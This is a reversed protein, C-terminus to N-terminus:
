FWPQVYLEYNETSLEGLVSMEFPTNKEAKVNDVFTTDGGLLKGDADRWVVTLAVTTAGYTNPNYIEGIISSNWEGKKLRSNAIQFPVYEPHELTDPKVYHWDDEPEVFEVEVVAPVKEVAGASGAFVAEQGPYMLMLGQNEVSLLAGDEDRATITFQPLNVAYESSNNVAAFSYYLYGDKVEFGSEKVTVISGSVPQQTEDTGEPIVEAPAEVTAAPTEVASLKEQLQAIETDKETVAATLEEIRAAKEAAEATLTEIQTDKAKAEESYTSIEAKYSEVSTNLETIAAATKEGEAKLADIQAQKDAVDAELEEIRAAKQAADATLAEIESAKEQAEAELTEIQTGRSALEAGLEEIRAAKETADQTLSEIQSAKEATDAELAEIQTAKEAADATLGEIQSAKETIDAGMAEIQTAKEAADATLSEIQSAKETIDADMAEIQTSKEAVEATLATIQDTKSKNNSVYLGGFVLALVALIAICTMAVNKKM